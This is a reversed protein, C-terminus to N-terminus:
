TLAGPPIRTSRWRWARITGASSSPRRPRLQRVLAAVTAGDPAPVDDGVPRGRRTAPERDVAGDTARVRGHVLILDAISVWPAPRRQRGALGARREAHADHDGVHARVLGAHLAPPDADGARIIFASSRAPVLIILSAGSPSPRRWRDCRPSGIEPGRPPPPQVGNCQRLAMRVMCCPWPGYGRPALWAPREPRQTRREARRRTGRRRATAVRGGPRASRGSFLRGPRAPARADAGQSCRRRNDPPSRRGVAIANAGDLRGERGLLDHDGLDSRPAVHQIGIRLLAGLVKAVDGLSQRQRLGDPRSAADVDGAGVIGGDPVAGIRLIQGVLEEVRRHRIAARHDIGHLRAAVVNEISIIPHLRGSPGSAYRFSIRATSRGANATWISTQLTM